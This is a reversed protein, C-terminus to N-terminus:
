QFYPCLNKLCLGLHLFHIFREIFTVFLVGFVAESIFASISACNVNLKSLGLIGGEGSFSFNALVLFKSNQCGWFVRGLSFNSHLSIATDGLSVMKNSTEIWIQVLYKRSRFPCLVSDDFVSPEM